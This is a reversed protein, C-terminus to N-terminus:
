ADRRRMRDDAHRLRRADLDDAVDLQQPALRVPRARKTATVPVLPLDVVVASIPWTSATAPQRDGDAAIDPAGREIQLRRRLAADVHELHRGVLEVQRAVEPGVDRDPQVQRGVMEVPVAVHAAVGLRLRADEDVHARVVGGDDADVLRRHLRDGRRQLACLGAAARAGDRDAAVLARREEDVGSRCATRPRAGRPRRRSGASAARRACSASRPAAGPARRLREAEVAADDEGGHCLKGPRACRM